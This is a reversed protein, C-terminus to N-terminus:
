RCVRTSVLLPTIKAVFSRAVVTSGADAINAPSLCGLVAARPKRKRLSGRNRAVARYRLFGSRM